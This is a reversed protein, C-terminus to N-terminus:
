MGPGLSPSEPPNLYNNIENIICDKNSCYDCNLGLRKAIIKMQDLSLSNKKSLLEELTNINLM